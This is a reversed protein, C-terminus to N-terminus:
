ICSGVIPGPGWLFFIQCVAQKMNNELTDRNRFKAFSTTKLILAYNWRETKRLHLEFLEKATLYLLDRFSQVYVCIIIVLWWASFNYATIRTNSSKSFIKNTIDIIPKKLLMKECEKSGQARTTVPLCQRINGNFFIEIKHSISFKENTPSLTLIIILEDDITMQKMM